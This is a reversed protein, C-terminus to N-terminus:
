TQMRAGSLDESKRITRGFLEEKQMYYFRIPCPLDTIWQMAWTQAWIMRGSHVSLACWGDTRPAEISRMTAAPVAERGPYRAGKAKCATNM